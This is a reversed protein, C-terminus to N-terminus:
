CSILFVTPGTSVPSSLCVMLSTAESNKFLAEIDHVTMGDEVRPERKGVDSVEVSKIFAIYVM